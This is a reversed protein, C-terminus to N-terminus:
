KSPVATSLIIVDLIRDGARIKDVVDMGTIVRGVITYRGDLHPQPSQTIFFQSGETDKGASAMGVTGTEFRSPSFESRVTYGPGGWGDGRPDGGQIVFNPVVRHFTLGRFFGRQKQLKLLNMVTFPAAEPDLSILIDGRITELRVTVEAPLLRLFAFDFDTLFPQIDVPVSSRYDSGTIQQLAEAAAFAVSRDRQELQALLPRVARRDRLKGLTAIIEQIAELDDSIHRAELSNILPQVSADKLFLSDGLISASTAVVAVDDSSLAGLLASLTRAQVSSDGPHKGALLALGELAACVIVPEGSNLAEFLIESGQLSGTTGTARLLAAQLPPPMQPNATVVKLSSPGEMAALTSAAEAELQWPFNGSENKAIYRLQDFTEGTVGTTDRYDLATGSFAALATLAVYENGDFFKRRFTAICNDHRRLDFRGLSKLANVQVRWDDDFEAMKQLPELCSPEDRFAGLLLALNMRVLPDQHTYFPILAALEQSIEPANGIRQLAYMTQWTTSEPPRLFQLLYRSAAPSVIKRIAFRAISMTVAATHELPYTNGVKLLIDSLANPTGFVGLEEILVDSAGTLALRKWILDYQLSERGRPSLMTATQGIAWAAARQVRQDTDTLNVVLLDLVSTDQISGFALTARERVVPDDDSLLQILKGDHVTRLDKIELITEIKERRIEEQKDRQDQAQLCIPSILMLAALCTKM